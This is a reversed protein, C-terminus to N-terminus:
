LSSVMERPRTTQPEPSRTEQGFCLASAADGAGDDADGGEGGGDSHSYFYWPM